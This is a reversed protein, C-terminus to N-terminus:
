SPILEEIAIHPQKKYGYLIFGLIFQNDESKTWKVGRKGLTNGKDANRM